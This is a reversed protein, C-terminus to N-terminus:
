FKLKEPLMGLKEPIISNQRINQILNQMVQDTNDFLIFILGYFRFPAVKFSNCIKTIMIFSCVEQMYTINGLENCRLRDSWLPQLKGKKFNHYPTHCKKGEGIKYCLELFRVLCLSLFAHLNLIFRLVKYYLLLLLLLLIFLLLLLLLLSLVLLLLM